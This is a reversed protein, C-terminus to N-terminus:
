EGWMGDIETATIETFSDVKDTIDSIQESMESLVDTITTALDATQKQVRTLSDKLNEVTIAKGM